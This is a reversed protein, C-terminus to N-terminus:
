RKEKFAALRLDHEYAEHFITSEPSSHSAIEDVVKQAQRESLNKTTERLGMARCNYHEGLLGPLIVRPVNCIKFTGSREIRAHSLEVKGEEDRAVTEL